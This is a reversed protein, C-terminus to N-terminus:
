AYIQIIGNVTLLFNEKNKDMNNFCPNLKLTLRQTVMFTGFGLLSMANLKKTQIILM